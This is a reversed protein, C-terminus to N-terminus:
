HVEHVLRKGSRLIVMRASRECHEHDCHHDEREDHEHRPDRRVDGCDTCSDRAASREPIKHGQERPRLANGIWEHDALRGADSEVERIDERQESVHQQQAGHCHVADPM